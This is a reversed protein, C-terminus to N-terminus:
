AAHLLPQKEKMHNLRNQLLLPDVILGCNICRHVILSSSLEPQREEIMLGKCKQCTMPEGGKYIAADFGAMYPLCRLM